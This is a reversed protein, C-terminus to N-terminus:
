YKPPKIRGEWLSKNNEECSYEMMEWDTRLTLTRTVSWTRTFTKPDDIIMEHVIHGFDPRSLRQVLHLQDSHPHGITDLRTRGNFNVTDIVLTDGDWRGVSDGFWTPIGQGHPRADIPVVTFWSNQEFLFALYTDSQMLQMPEPTNISRTMGFPLCAGTYDGDAADYQRWNAEGWATFPLDALGKFDPGDKTLDPVYPKQWVGSFDVKGTATRPTPGAPPRYEDQGAAPGPLVVSAALVAALAVPRTKV